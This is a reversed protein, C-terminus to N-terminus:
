REAALFSALGMLMSTNKKKKSFASQQRSIASLKKM